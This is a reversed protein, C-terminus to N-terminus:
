LRFMKLGVNEIKRANKEESKLKKRNKSRMKKIIKEGIKSCM